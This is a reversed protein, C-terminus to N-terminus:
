KFALVKGWGAIAVFDMIYEIGQQPLKDEDAYRAAIKGIAEAPTAALVQERGIEVACDTTKIGFFVTYRHM